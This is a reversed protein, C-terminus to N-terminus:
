QPHNRYHIIHTSGGQPPISFNGKRFHVIHASAEQIIKMYFFTKSKFFNCM